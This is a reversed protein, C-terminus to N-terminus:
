FKLPESSSSNERIKAMIEDVSEEGVWTGAHKNVMDETYKKSFKIGDSLSLLKDIMDKAMAGIVSLRYANRESM